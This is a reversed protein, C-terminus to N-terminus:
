LGIQSFIEGARQPDKIAEQTKKIVIPLGGKRLPKTIFPLSNIGESEITLTKRKGIEFGASRNRSDPSFSTAVLDGLGSLLRATERQGGLRVIVGEMESFIQTFLIGRANLGWGLGETIGLTVSYINKLIGALAVGRVDRSYRLKLRSGEFLKNMKEFNKKNFSSFVAGGIEGKIIEDALMPGGLLGYEKGPLVERAVMDPTKGKETEIGKSLTVILVDKRLHPKILGFVERLASSPVCAFVFRKGKVTGELSKLGKVRRSDKDWADFGSGQGSFIGGLAQGIKGYGIIAIGPRSVADQKQKKKKM